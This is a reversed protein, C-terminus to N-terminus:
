ILGGGSMFGYDEYTGVGIDDEFAYRTADICNHVLIGNAFYEHSDEVTLDYVQMKGADQVSVIQAGTVVVNLTALDTHYLSKAASRVYGHSTTLELNVDTNQKARTQVSDIIEPISRSISKVM